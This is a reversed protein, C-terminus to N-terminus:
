FAIMQDPATHFNYVNISFYLRSKMHTVKTLLYLWLKGIINLSNRDQSAWIFSEWIWSWVNCSCQQHGMGGPWSAYM